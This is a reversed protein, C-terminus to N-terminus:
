KKKKRKWTDTAPQGINGAQDIAQVQFTHKGTKVKVTYPSTCPVFSASDLKCQFSAVARTDTGTFAFTATKKKTKDKPGQTITALPPATDVPEPEPEPSPAQPCSATFEDAGIDAEATGNCNGDISRQDGDLDATGSSGDTAGADITPSGPTQHFDGTGASVFLPDATQNTGSGAPTVSATAGGSEFDRVSGYNSHDLTITTNTGTDGATGEVDESSTDIATTRAIVSKADVSFQGGGNIGFHIGDTNVAGSSFATVNRLTITGAGGSSNIGLGWAGSDSTWCTSDRITTTGSTICAIGGTSEVVVREVTATAMFPSLFLGAVAGSHEIELHRFSAGDNTFVATSASSVIRPPPQGAQGHVDIMDVADIEDGGVMYDGPLLIVEDGDQVDAPADGEVARQIGCPDSLNCPNAGDGGPEAHRIAAPATAPLALAGLGGALAVWIRAKV